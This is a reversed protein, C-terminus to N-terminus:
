FAQGFGIYVALPAEGRRRDLPAAVDLRIPGVATYYRLGLGVGVRIREEFDPLSSEFAGGADVFPVIGITDTIKIRAELSGELLSRGGIPEGLVNPSLSKYAFGRVSGGGGAFFRHNAPIEGLGAGSISGFGVRGALVISADERLSFYGSAAARFRTFGVSSGLAELYPAVEGQLRFGRTPDLPRDTSDYIAALPLGVLTYDVEGLVDRSQGKEAMFRGQASFREGVRRRFGLSAGASESVYGDTRERQLTADALFDFRSGGLAPKVFSASVRGGLRDAVSSRQVTSPGSQTLWTANAELRIREGGGFLNRHTFHGGVGPGDRTSYRAALGLARPPRESAEIFLPLRGQADLGSPDEPTRIRVGSVAEIQAVSRRISALAEPSYPEGPEVYVFSAVVRPDLSPPARVHAQGLPVAAGPDVVMRIDVAAAPHDVVPDLAAIKVFPHSRTRFHDVIRAQAALIDASRARQGTALAVIRPPLVDPPFPRGATDSVELRRLRFAPGPTAAIRVPVRARGQYALAARRAAAQAAESSGAGLRLPAGAIEVTVIANYHGAGWLADVLRPLDAAARRVLADADPPADARLRWLTSADRLAPVIDSGAGPVDFSVEYPLATPSPEPLREGFGFFSLIRSQAHAPAACVLALPLVLALAFGRAGARVSNRAPGCIRSGTRAGVGEVGREVNDVRLSFRM